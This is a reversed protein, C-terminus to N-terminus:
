PSGYRRWSSLGGRVLAVGSALDVEHQPGVYYVSVVAFAIVKGTEMVCDIAALVQDLNPGKPERTRHSPVLAQDLIDADIHLYIMDVREALDAVATGLDAGPFGPAPAAIVADTARILREEAPDLHRMDVLVIRDTPLPARIHSRERWEPHALGACVAVPMGGLLQTLSTRPTNFDGHADFWVLGIRAGPGHADQLGGLVGPAQACNGGTMLVARGARRGEAAAEAIAGGLEGLQAPTAADQPVGSSDVPLRPETLSFPVGAEGYVSAAQYADLARQEAGAYRNRAYRIQIVQLGTLPQTM